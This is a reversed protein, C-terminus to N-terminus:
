EALGLSIRERATALQGHAESAFYGDYAQIERELFLFEGPNVTGRKLAGLIM